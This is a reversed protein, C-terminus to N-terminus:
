FLNGFEPNLILKKNMFSGESLFLDKGQFEKPYIVNTKWSTSYFLTGIVEANLLQSLEKLVEQMNEAYMSIQYWTEKDIIFILFWDDTYPGDSKTMEGIVKIDSIKLLQFESGISIRITENDTIFIRHNSIKIKDDSIYKGKLNDYYDAISGLFTSLLPAIVIISFLSVIIIIFEVAKSIIKYHLINKKFPYKDLMFLCLLCFLVSIVLYFLNFKIKSIIEIKNKEKQEDM